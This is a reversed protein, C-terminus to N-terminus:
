FFVTYRMKAPKENHLTASEEYFIEQMASLAGRILIGCNRRIGPARQGDPARQRGFFLARDSRRRAGKGYYGRGAQLLRQAGGGSSVGGRGYRLGANRWQRAGM